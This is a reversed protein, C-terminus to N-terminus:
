VDTDETTDAYDRMLGPQTSGCTTCEVTWTLDKGDHFQVADAPLRTLCTACTPEVGGDWTEEFFAVPNCLPCAQESNVLSDLDLLLGNVCATDEYTAGFASWALQDHEPISPTSM